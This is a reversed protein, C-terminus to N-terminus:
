LAWAVVVLVAAATMISYWRVSLGGISFAVPDIGINIM